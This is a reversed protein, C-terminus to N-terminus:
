SCFSSLEPKTSCCLLRALSDLSGVLISGVCQAQGWALRQHLQSQWSVRVLLMVTTAMIYCDEARVTCGEKRQGGRAQWDAFNSMCTYLCVTSQMCGVNTTTYNVIILCAFSSSHTCTALSRRWCHPWKPVVTWELITHRPSINRCALWPKM